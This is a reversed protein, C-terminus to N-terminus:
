APRMVSARLGVTLPFPDPRATWSAVEAQALIHHM